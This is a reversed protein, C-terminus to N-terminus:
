VLGALDDGDMSVFLEKQGSRIEENVADWYTKAVVPSMPANFGVSTGDLVTQMLQHGLGDAYVSITFVNIIRM